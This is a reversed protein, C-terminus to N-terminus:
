MKVHKRVTVSSAIFGIGIGLILGAPLLYKFIENITMFDMMGSIVSFTDVIYDVLYNYVEYIIILPIVAGLLGILIGEVIFPFRVFFDTAGIMKMIYIEEKRVTIGVTVTNSILFVSLALLVIIIAASVYAVLKGFGSFSDALQESKNVQRVGPLAELYTVMDSQGNIDKLYIAYSGSDALPNDDAFAEGAEEHGKFYDKKFQEWAEEPSTYEVKAVADMEGIGEGIEIIEEESLKEDFFITICVTESAEKVMKQVNMAIAFFMGFLFICAAMTSISALSFLKNKFINKIGQRFCYFFTSIRM